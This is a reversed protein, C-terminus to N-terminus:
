PKEEEQVEQLVKRRKAYFNSNSFSYEKNKEFKIKACKEKEACACRAHLSLSAFFVAFRSESEAGYEQQGTGM